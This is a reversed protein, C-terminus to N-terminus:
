QITGPTGPVNPLDIEDGGLGIANTVLNILGYFSLIVVFAVVAYIILQKGKTKGDDSDGGIVFFKIVGWVLFIFAIALALPFLVNNIFGIIGQILGGAGLGDGFSQASVFVPLMFVFTPLALFKKM